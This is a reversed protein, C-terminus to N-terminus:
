KQSKKVADNIFYVYISSTIRNKMKMNYQRIPGDKGLDRVQGMKRDM